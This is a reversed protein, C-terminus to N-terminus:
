CITWLKKATPNRAELTEGDHDAPRNVDVEITRRDEVSSGMMETEAGTESKGHMTEHKPKGQAGARGFGFYQLSLSHGRKYSAAA